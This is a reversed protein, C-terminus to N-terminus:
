LAVVVSIGMWELAGFFVFVALATGMTWWTVHLLGVAFPFAARADFIFFRVTLATNRWENKRPM